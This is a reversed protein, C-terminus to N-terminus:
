HHNAAIIGWTVLGIIVVVVVLNIILNRRRQRQACTLCLTRRGYYGRPGSRGGSVGTMVTM